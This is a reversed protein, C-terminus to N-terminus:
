RWNISWCLGKHVERKEKDKFKSNERPINEVDGVRWRQGMHPCSDTVARGWVLFPIRMSVSGRHAETVM